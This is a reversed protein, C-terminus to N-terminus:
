LIHEDRNKVIVKAKERHFLKSFWNKVRYFLKPKRKMVNDLAITFNKYSVPDDRKLDNLTEKIVTKTGSLEKQLRKNNEILKHNDKLDKVSFAKDNEDKITEDKDNFMTIKYGLAQGVDREFDRHFSWCESKTLVKKANFKTTGKEFPCFLVHIHPKANPEDLHVYANFVNGYRKGIFNICHAWFKGRDQPLLEKPPDIVWSGLVVTNDRLKKKNQNHTRLYEIGKLDDQEKRYVINRNSLTPDINPPRKKREYLMRSNHEVIKLDKFNIKRLNM